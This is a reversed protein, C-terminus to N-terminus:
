QSRNSKLRIKSQDVRKIFAILIILTAKNNSKLCVSFFTFMVYVHRYSIRKCAFIHLLVFHIFHVSAM